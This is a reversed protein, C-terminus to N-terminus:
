LWETFTVALAICVMAAVIIVYAVVAGEPARDDPEDHEIAKLIRAFMEREANIHDDTPKMIAGRM